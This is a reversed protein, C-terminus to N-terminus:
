WCKENAPHAENPEMSRPRKKISALVDHDRVVGIAALRVKEFWLDALADVDLLEVDGVRLADGLYDVLV